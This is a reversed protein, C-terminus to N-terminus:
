LNLKAEKEFLVQDEYFKSKYQKPEEFGLRKRRLDEKKERLIDEYKRNHSELEDRFNPQPQFREKLEMLKSLKEDEEQKQQESFKKELEKYLKPHKSIKRTEEIMNRM